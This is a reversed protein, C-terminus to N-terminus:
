HSIDEGGRERTVLLYALSGKVALGSMTAPLPFVAASMPAQTGECFGKEAMIWITGGGTCLHLAVTVVQCGVAEGGDGWARREM